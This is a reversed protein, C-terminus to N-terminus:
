LSQVKPHSKFFSLKRKIHFFFIYIQYPSLTCFTNVNTTEVLDVVASKILQGGLDLGSLGPVCANISYFVAAQPNPIPEYTWIDQIKSPMDPLLAVQVFILPKEEM